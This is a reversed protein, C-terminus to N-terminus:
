PCPPKGPAAMESGLIAPLIKVECSAKESGLERGGLDHCWVLVQKIALHQRHGVEGRGELTWASVLM